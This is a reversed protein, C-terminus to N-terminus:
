ALCECGISHYEASGHVEFLDMLRRHFLDIWCTPWVSRGFLPWIAGLHKRQVLFVGTEVANKSFFARTTLLDVWFLRAKGQQMFHNTIISIVYVTISDDFLLIM